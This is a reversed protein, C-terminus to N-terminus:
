NGPENECSTVVLRGKAYRLELKTKAHTRYFSWHITRKTCRVTGEDSRPTFDGCGDVVIAWALARM